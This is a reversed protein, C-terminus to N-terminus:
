REQKMLVLGFYVALMDAKDLRLSREGKVFRAISLREVGSDKALRYLSLGSEKIAAKLTESMTATKPHKM